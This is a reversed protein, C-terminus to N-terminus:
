PALFQSSQQDIGMPVNAKQFPKNLMSWVFICKSLQYKQFLAGIRTHNAIIARTKSLHKGTLFNTFTIYRWDYIHLRCVSCRYIRFNISRIQASSAADGKVSIPLDVLLM